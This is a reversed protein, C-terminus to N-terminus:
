ISFAPEETKEVGCRMMQDGMQMEFIFLSQLVKQDVHIIQFSSSAEEM